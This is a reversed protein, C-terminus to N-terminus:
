VVETVELTVCSLVKQRPEIICAQVAVYLTDDKTDNNSQTGALVRTYARQALLLGLGPSVWDCARGNEM